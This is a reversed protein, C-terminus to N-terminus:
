PPITGPPRVGRGQQRTASDGLEMRAKEALAKLREVVAPHQAAVNIKEGVDAELDFLALETRATSYGSPQGDRGPAGTLSRYPHAFHLKWSGSRVAQLERDWYFYYAEQPSRADPDGRLVPWADRGDIPHMPLEAGILKALTPFLDITMLPVASVRGAPITGPWRAVFPERVGGEFSTGKGERLPGASGAHNGYSLWPGNDSTFIVLTSEDLGSEKLTALIQGVSGDIEEIVDGYLGVKSQGRYPASAGLPVHPMSHPVYLFFPRDKNRRIFAVARETYGATLTDMDPNTRVVKDGDILPLEPYSRDTPHRPWM